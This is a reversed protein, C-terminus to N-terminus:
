HLSFFNVGIRSLYNGTIQLIRSAYESRLQGMVSFEVKSLSCTPGEETAEKQELPKIFRGSFVGDENETNTTDVRGSDDLFLVEWKPVSQDDFVTFQHRNGQACRIYIKRAHEADKLKSLPNSSPILRLAIISKLPYIEDQWTNSQPPRAEMDCAPSCCMWWHDDHDLKFITGTTLHSGRFRDSSMFANLEFFVDQDQLKGFNAVNSRVFETLPKVRKEREKELGSWEPKALEHSVIKHAMTHLIDDTRIRQRISELLKASFTEVSPKLADLSIENIDPPLMSFLYYLLGTQREPPGLYADDIALGGMELINQIESAILQLLNPRWDCLSKSLRDYILEPDNDPGGEEIKTLIAVFLNGSQLWYMGERCVGSLKDSGFTEDGRYKQIERLSEAIVVRMLDAANKHSYGEAVIDSRLSKAAESRLGATLGKSLCEILLSDSAVKLESNLDDWNEISEPSLIEIAPECQKILNAAVNRWVQKLDTESTYLAVVNFHPTQSLQSLLQISLSPDDSDTRNLHYDLIILDSKKIKDLSSLSRLEEERSEIDCLINRLKFMKYLRQARDIESYREELDEKNEVYSEFMPFNDDILLASHVARNLFTDLIVEDYPNEATAEIQQSM